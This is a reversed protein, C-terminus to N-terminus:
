RYVGALRARSVVAGVSPVVEVDVADVFVGVPVVEDGGAVSARDVLDVPGVPGNDPAKGAFVAGELEPVADVKAELM